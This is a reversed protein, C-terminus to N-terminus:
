GALNFKEVQNAKSRFPVLNFIEVQLTSIEVEGSAAATWKLRELCPASLM